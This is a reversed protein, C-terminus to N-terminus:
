LNIIIPQSATQCNLFLIIAAQKQRICRKLFGDKEKKPKM